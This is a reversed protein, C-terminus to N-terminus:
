YVPRDVSLSKPSEDDEDLENTGVLMEAPVPDSEYEMGTAGIDDSFTAM